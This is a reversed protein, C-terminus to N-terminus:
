ELMVGIARMCAASEAGPQPAVQPRRAEDTAGDFMAQTM